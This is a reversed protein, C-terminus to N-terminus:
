ADDRGDNQRRFDDLSADAGDVDLAFDDVADRAKDRVRPGNRMADGVEGHQRAGGAAAGSHRSFSDRVGGGHTLRKAVSRVGVRFVSRM